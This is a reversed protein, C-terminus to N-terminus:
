IVGNMSKKLVDMGYMRERQGLISNAIEMRMQAGTLEKEQQQRNALGAGAGLSALTQTGYNGSNAAAGALTSFFELPNPKSREDLLSMLRQQQAILNARSIEIGSTDPSELPSPDAM